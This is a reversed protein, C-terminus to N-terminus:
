VAPDWEAFSGTADCPFAQVRAIAAVPIESYIHPFDQGIDSTDEWVLPADLLSEEVHLVVLDTRGAFRADAVIPVQSASSCHIFGQAQWGSPVYRDSRQAWDSM